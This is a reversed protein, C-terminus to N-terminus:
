GEEGLGKLFTPFGQHKQGMECTERLRKALFIFKPTYIEWTESLTLPPPSKSDSFDREEM